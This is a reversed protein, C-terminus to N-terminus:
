KAIRAHGGDDPLAGVVHQLLSCAVQAAVRGFSRAGRSLDIQMRGKGDDPLGAVLPRYIGGDFARTVHCLGDAATGLESEQHLRLRIQHQVAASSFAAM